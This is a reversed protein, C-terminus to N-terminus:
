AFQSHEMDTCAAQLGNSRAASMPMVTATSTLTWALARGGRLHMNAAVRRRGLGLNTGEEREQELFQHQRGFCCLWSASRTLKQREGGPYLSRCCGPDRGGDAGLPTGVGGCFDWGKQAQTATGDARNGCAGHTIGTFDAVKKRSVYIQGLAAPSSAYFHAANIVLTAASPFAVSTGGIVLWDLGQGAIRSRAPGAKYRRQQM